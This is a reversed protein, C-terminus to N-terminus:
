CPHHERPKRAMLWIKVGAGPLILEEVCAFGLREYFAINDGNATELYATMGEADCRDMVPRLLSTGVGQRQRDIDVGLALLYYHPNPVHRRRHEDLQRVLQSISRVRRPGRLRAMALLLRISDVTGMKPADPRLWVAVGALDDTTFTATLSGSAYRLIGAWGARMRRTRDGAPSAVFTFYPDEHFARTLVRALEPIDAATARRVGLPREHTAAGDGQALEGDRKAGDAM